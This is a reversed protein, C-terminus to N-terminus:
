FYLLFKSLQLTTSWRGHGGLDTASLDLMMKSFEEFRQPVARHSLPNLFRYLPVKQSCLQVPM